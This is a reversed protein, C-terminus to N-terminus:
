NFSFTGIIPSHDSINNYIDRGDLTPFEDFLNIVQYGHAALGRYWFNDYAESLERKSSRLSTKEGKMIAKFSFAMAASFAPETSDLNFDGAIITPAMVNMFTNFLPAVERAPNKGKPVLHISALAFQIKLEKFFFLGIAPERIIEEAHKAGLPIVIASPPCKDMIDGSVKVYAIRREKWLYGYRESAGTPIESWGQCIKDGTIKQIEKAIRNLAKTGKSSTVVEQVTIVDADILIRAVNAELLKERGLKKLNWSAVTLFKPDLSLRRRAAPKSEPKPTRDALTVPPADAPNPNSLAEEKSRYEFPLNKLNESSHCHYNNKANNRHCGHSDTRGGHSCASMSYSILIFILKRFLGASLVERYYRSNRLFRALLDLVYSLGLNLWAQVLSALEM